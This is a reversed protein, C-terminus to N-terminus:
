VHARGIELPHFRKAFSRRLVTQISDGRGTAFYIPVHARLLKEFLATVAPVLKATRGAGPSVVTGDFDAVLAGFRQGALAEVYKARAAAVAERDNVEGSSHRAALKRAVSAEVANTGRPTFVPGLHYIRRGYGPVGPRGPDIGVSRGVRATLHFVQLLLDLAGAPGNSKTVLRIVRISSPLLALTKEAVGASEPSVFAVVASRAGRKHIWNHRGHAFNRYDALMVGGLGAESFKSELDCAAPRAWGGFLALYYDPTDSQFLGELGSSAPSPTVPEALARFARAALVMFALLSNTALYGDKGAPFPRAFIRTREDGDALREVKSNKRGCAVLVGLPEREVAAKYTALVDRNGGSATFILVYAQRLEADSQLFSLPTHAVATNGRTEHLLRAFEAVTFSGGAGVIILLHGHAHAVFDGFEGVDANAAWTLTTPLRLLENSFPKGM